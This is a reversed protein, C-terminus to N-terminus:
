DELGILDFEKIKGSNELLQSVSPKTRGGDGTVLENLYLGSEAIIDFQYRKSNIRKWKISKVKKHKVRDPKGGL